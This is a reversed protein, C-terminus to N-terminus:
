SFIRCFEAAQEFTAFNSESTEFNLVTEEKTFVSFSPYDFAIGKYGAACEEKSAAYIDYQGISKLFVMAM